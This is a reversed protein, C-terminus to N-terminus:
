CSQFWCPLFGAIIKVLNLLWIHLGSSAPHSYLGNSPSSDISWHHKITVHACASHFEKKAYLETTNCFRVLCLGWICPDGPKPALKLTWDPKHARDRPTAGLGTAKTQITRHVSMGRRARDGEAKIDKPRWGCSVKFARFTLGWNVRSVARAGQTQRRRSGGRQNELRRPLTPPLLPQAQHSGRCAIHSLQWITPELWGM